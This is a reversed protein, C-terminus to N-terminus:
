SLYPHLYTDELQCRHNQWDKLETMAQSLDTMMEDPNIPLWKAIDKLLSEVKTFHEQWQTLHGLQLFYPLGVVFSILLCILAPLWAWGAGDGHPMEWFLATIGILTVSLLCGYPAPERPKPLLRKFKVRANKLSEIAVTLQPECCQACVFDRCAKITQADLMAKSEDIIRRGLSITHQWYAKDEMDHFDSTKVQLMESAITHKEAIILALWPYSKMLSQTETLILNEKFAFEKISAESSRQDLRKLSLRDLDLSLVSKLSAPSTSKLRDTVHDFLYAKLDDSIKM